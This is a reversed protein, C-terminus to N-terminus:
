TFVGKRNHDHAPRGAAARFGHLTDDENVGLCYDRASLRHRRRRVPLLRGDRCAFSVPKFPGKPPVAVSTEGMSVCRKALLRAAEAPATEPIKRRTAASDM